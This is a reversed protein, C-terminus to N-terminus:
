EKATSVCSHNVCDSTCGPRTCTMSQPNFLRDPKFEDPAWPEDPHFEVEALYGGVWERCSTVKGRLECTGCDIHVSTNSRLPCELSVVAGTQSIEELLADVKNLGDKLTALHSCLLKAKRSSTDSQLESPQSEPGPNNSM